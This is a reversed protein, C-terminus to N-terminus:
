ARNKKRGYGLGLLGLGLLAFSSPESVSVSNPDTFELYVLGDAGNGGAYRMPDGNGFYGGAGGGAGYGFGGQGSYISAGADGNPGAGNILIGGAGGGPNWHENGTGGQGGAGGAGATITNEVFLSLLSTYDGQGLGGLYNANEGNSGGSGGAGGATGTSNIGGNWAGGGGSGGNNGSQNVGSVGLGGGVTLFGGFSSNTGSTLGTITNCGYCSDAGNGGSGVTVAISSGGSVAFTGLGFYGSGGGGQHGNAGGGGGGIALVNVSTVGIPVYFIDSAEFIIFGANAASSVAISSACILSKFFSKM